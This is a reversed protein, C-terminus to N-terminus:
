AIIALKRTNGAADKITIYGNVAVDGSATFAGFSVLGAGKPLLRIDVDASAGRAGMRAVGTGAFFEMADVGPGSSARLVEDSGALLRVIGTGKSQLEATVNADTGTAQLGVGVGTNGARILLKNAVASPTPGVTLSPLEIENISAKMPGVSRIFYQCTGGGTAGFRLVSGTLCGSGPFADWILNLGNIWQSPADNNQIQVAAVCQANGAAAIVAGYANGTTASGRIGADIEVGIATGGDATVVGTLNGGWVRAGSAAAEGLGYMAVAAKTTSVSSNKAHASVLFCNAYADFDAGYDRRFAYNAFVPPLQFPQHNRFDLEFGATFSAAPDISVASDVAPVLYDAALKWTGKGLHFEGSNTSAFLSTIAADSATVGTKDAGTFDALTVAEDNKDHQTRAISGAATSKVGVLVDGKGSATSALDALDASAHLQDQTYITVDASDTLTVKYPLSSWYITAEGRANLVIPNTNPITGAQDSYTAQPTTTGAAYTNLKGGSLPDGNADFYQQKGQPMLSAM